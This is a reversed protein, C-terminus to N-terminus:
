TIERRLEEEFVFGFHGTITASEIKEAPTTLIFGSVQKCDSGTCLRQLESCSPMDIIIETFSILYIFIDCWHNFYEKILTDQPIKPIFMSYIEINSILFIESLELYVVRKKLVLSYEKQLIQVLAKWRIGRLVNWYNLSIKM